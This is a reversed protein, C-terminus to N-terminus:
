QDTVTYEMFVSVLRNLSSTDTCQLTVLLYSGKLHDGTILPCLQNPTGLDRLLGAYLIGEGKYKFDTNLLLSHQGLSTQIDPCEWIASAGARIYLNKFNQKEGRGENFLLTVRGLVAAAGHFKNFDPASINDHEWAEGAKFSILKNEINTFFEPQMEMRETWGNSKESFVRTELLDDFCVLIKLNSKDIGSIVNTGSFAKCRDRFKKSQKYDSIPTLGDAAKRIYVSRKLDLFYRSNYSATFSEPHKGISFEMTSYQPRNLVSASPTTQINGSNDVLQQQNIPMDACRDEQFIELNGLESFLKQVSGYQIDLDAFQDDDFSSLGNISTQYVYQRSAVLTVPRTKQGAFPDVVMARGNDTYGSDFFDSYYPSEQHISIFTPNTPLNGTSDLGQAPISRKILYQDGHRETFTALNGIVHSRIATGPNVIPYQEGYEYFLQNTATEASQPTYVEFAVHAPLTFSPAKFRIKYPDDIVIEGNTLKHTLIIDTEYESAFAVPDGSTADGILRIRDGDKPQYSVNSQGANLQQYVFINSYDLLITDGDVTTSVSVWQLYSSKTLNITRCISFSYADMPPTYSIGFNMCAQLGNNLNGAAFRNPFTVKWQPLTVMGGVRKGDKNFYQIGYQYSAGSKYQRYIRDAVSLDYPGDEPNKIGILISGPTVFTLMTGNVGTTSSTSAPYGAAVLGNQFLAALAAQHVDGTQEIFFAFTGDANTGELIYGGAPYPNINDGSFLLQNVQNRVFGSTYYNCRFNEMLINHDDTGVYRFNYYAPAFSAQLQAQPVTDYGQVINGYCLHNKNLIAQAAARVPFADDAIKIQDATSITNYIGDNYFDYFCFCEDAYDPSSSKDILAISFNDLLGIRAVIEIKAVDRTGTWFGIRIGNNTFSADSTREEEIVRYSYGSLASIENDRYYYRYRFQFLKKLLSNTNVTNSTFLRTYPRIAPAGKIASIIDETIFGYGTYLAADVNTGSTIITENINIVTDNGFNSVSYRRPVPTCFVLDYNGAPLKSFQTDTGTVQQTGALGSAKFFTASTIKATEVNLKRPAVVGDTWYLLDEQIDIHLILKSFKLVDQGGTMPGNMVVVTWHYTDHDLQLIHHAPLDTGNNPTAKYFVFSRGKSRDEKAGIAQYTQTSPRLSAPVPIPIHSPILGPAGTSGNISEDHRMNVMDVYDNPMFVKNGMLDVAEYDSDSDMKGGAFTKKITQKAM